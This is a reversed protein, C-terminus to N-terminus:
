SPAKRYKPQAIAAYEANMVAQNYGCRGTCDLQSRHFQCRSFIGRWHHRGISKRPPALVRCHFDHQVIEHRNCNLEEVGRPNLGRTAPSVLRDPPDDLKYRGLTSASLWRRRKRRSALRRSPIANQLRISKVGFTTGVRQPKRCRPPCSYTPHHENRLRVPISRGQKVMICLRRDGAATAPWRRSRVDDARSAEAGEARTHTVDRTPMVEIAM